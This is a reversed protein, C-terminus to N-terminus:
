KCHVSSSVVIISRYQHSKEIDLNKANSKNSTSSSSNQAKCGRDCRLRGFYFLLLCVTYNRKRKGGEFTANIIIVCRASALRGNFCWCCDVLCFFINAMLVPIANQEFLDEPCLITSWFRWSHIHIRHKKAWKRDLITVTYVDPLSSFWVREFSKSSNRCANAYQM